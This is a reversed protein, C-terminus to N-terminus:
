GLALQEPTFDLHPWAQQLRQLHARQAEVFRRHEPTDPHLPRHRTAAQLKGIDHLLATTDASFYTDAFHQWIYEVAVESPHVMDAAYFRYDRLDDLLLEYAPFYHVFPLHQCLYEAALLLTAKSRQNAVAGTRLHRVPSVTLIARFAPHRTHMAELLPGISEVIESVSLRHPTFHGDPMKHNNAVFLGTERLAFADATGWTLLLRTCQQLHDAAQQYLVNIGQLAAERTPQAFSGHHAWSRWLGGHEFLEDPTFTQDGAWLRALGAHLAAPNYVIGFPNLLTDFKGASLRAGMHETFCSGLLLLRDSHRIGFPAPAPALATRFM